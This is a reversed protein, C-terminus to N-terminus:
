RHDQLIVRRMVSHLRCNISKFVLFGMFFLIREILVIRKKSSELYVSRDPFM